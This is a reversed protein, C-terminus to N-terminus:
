NGRVARNLHAVGGGLRPGEFVDEDVEFEEEEGGSDKRKFPRFLSKTSRQASNELTSHHSIGAKKKV